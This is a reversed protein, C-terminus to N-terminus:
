ISDLGKRPKVALKRYASPTMGTVKKFQASLHQVSSYGLLYSAESLTHEGYSLWEKVKEVKLQIFYKEITIGETGSFLHSLYSYNEALYAGLYSPLSFSSPIDAGHVAEILANKVAEIRKSDKSKLLVFGVEELNAELTKMEQSSLPKLLWVRGLEVKSFGIGIRLLLEEVASVCRPCVMHKISLIQM